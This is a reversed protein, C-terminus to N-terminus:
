FYSVANRLEFNLREATCLSMNMRVNLQLISKFTRNLTKKVAHIFLKLHFNAKKFQTLSQFLAYAQKIGINLCILSTFLGPSVM